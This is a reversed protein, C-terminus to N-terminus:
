IVRVNGKLQGPPTPPADSIVTSHPCSTLSAYVSIEVYKYFMMVFYIQVNNENKESGM